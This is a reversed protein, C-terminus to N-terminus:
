SNLVFFRTTIGRNTPSPALVGHTLTKLPHDQINTFTELYTTNPFAQSFTSLVEAVPFNEDDIPQSLGYQVTTVTTLPANRSSLGHLVKPMIPQFSDDIRLKDLNEFQAYKLLRGIHGRTDTRKDHILRLYKLNTYCPILLKRLDAKMEDLLLVVNRLGSVGSPSINVPLVACNLFLSTLKPHSMIRDYFRPTMLHRSLRRSDQCSLSTVQTPLWEELDRVGYQDSYILEFKSLAAADQMFQEAWLFTPSPRELALGLEGGAYYTGLSTVRDIVELGRLVSYITDMDRTPFALMLELADLHSLNVSSLLPLLCWPHGSIELRTFSWCNMYPKLFDKIDGATGTWSYMVEIALSQVYQLGHRISELNQEKLNVWCRMTRSGCVMAGRGADEECSCHSIGRGVLDVHCKCPYARVELKQGNVEEPWPGEFYIVLNRWLREDVLRRLRRNVLRLQNLEKYELYDTCIAEVETPVRGNM